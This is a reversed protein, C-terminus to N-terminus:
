RFSSPLSLRTIRKAQYHSQDAVIETNLDTIGPQEFTRFCPIANMQVAACWLVVTITTEDGAGLAKMLSAQARFPMEKPTKLSLFMRCSVSLCRKFLGVITATETAVLRNEVLVARQGNQRRAAECLHLTNLRRNRTRARIKQEKPWEQVSRNHPMHPHRFKELKYLCFM